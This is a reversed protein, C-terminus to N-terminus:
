PTLDAYSAKYAIRLGCLCNFYEFPAYLLLCFLSLQASSLLSVSSTEEVQM